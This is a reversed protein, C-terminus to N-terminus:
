PHHLSVCHQSVTDPVNMRSWDKNIVDGVKSELELHRKAFATEENTLNLNKCNMESKTLLWNKDKFIKMASEGIPIKRPLRDLDASSSAKIYPIKGKGGVNGKQAGGVEDITIGSFTNFLESVSPEDNNRQAADMNVGSFTNFLESDSPEGNNRQADDMNEESFTNFLESDSPEGNNRQADDEFLGQWLAPGDEQNKNVEKDIVDAIDGNTMSAPGRNKVGEEVINNLLITKSNIEKTQNGHEYQVFSHQKDGNFIEVMPVRVAAGLRNKSNAEQSRRAGDVDIKIGHVISTMQSVINGTKAFNVMTTKGKETDGSIVKTLAKTHALVPISDINGM